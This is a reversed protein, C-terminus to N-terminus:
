ESLVRCLFKDTNGVHIGLSLKDILLGWIRSIALTNLIIDEFVSWFILGKEWRQGKEVIPKGTRGL